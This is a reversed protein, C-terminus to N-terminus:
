DFAQIIYDESEGAKALGGIGAVYTCFNCNTILSVNGGFKKM